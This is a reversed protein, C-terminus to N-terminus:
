GNQEEKLKDVNFDARIMGFLDPNASKIPYITIGKKINIKGFGKHLIQHVAEFIRDQDEASFLCEEM